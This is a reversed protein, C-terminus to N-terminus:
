VLHKLEGSVFSELGQDSSTSQAGELNDEPLITVKHPARKAEDFYTAIHEYKIEWEEEGSVRLDRPKL